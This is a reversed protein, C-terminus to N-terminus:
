RIYDLFYLQFVRLYVCSFVLALFKYNCSLTLIYINYYSHVKFLIGLKIINLKVLKIIM